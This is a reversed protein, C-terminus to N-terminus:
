GDEGGGEGQGRLVNGFLQRFDFFLARLLFNLHVEGSRWGVDLGEKERLFEIVQIGRICGCEALSVKVGIAVDM